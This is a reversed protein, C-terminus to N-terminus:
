WCGLPGKIGMSNLTLARCDVDKTWQTGKATGTLTFGTTSITASLDYYGEMSVTPYPLSALTAHYRFNNSFFRTQLNAIEMLAATADTRRGRTIYEQYSPVAIAALISIIAVVVVLEM